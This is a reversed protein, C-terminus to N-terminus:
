ISTSVIEIENVADIVGFVSGTLPTVMSKVMTATMDPGPLKTGGSWRVKTHNVYYVLVGNCFQVDACKGPTCEPCHPLRCDACNPTTCSESNHGENSSVGPFAMDLMDLVSNSMTQLIQVSKSM